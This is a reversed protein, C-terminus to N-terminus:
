NVLNLLTGWNVLENDESPLSPDDFPPNEPRKPTLGPNELSHPSYSDDDSDLSFPYPEYTPYIRREARKKWRRDDM